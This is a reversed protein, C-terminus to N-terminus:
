GDFSSVICIRGHGGIHSIMCADWADVMFFLKRGLSRGIICTLVAGCLFECDLESRRRGSLLFVSM